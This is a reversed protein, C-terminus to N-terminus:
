RGGLVVRVMQRELDSGIREVLACRELDGFTVVYAVGLLRGVRFDVVTSSLLGSPGEQVARLGIATDHFGKIPVREVAVLTQDQGAPKGLNEEFQRLFIDNVWRSVADESQFLHAVTAVAVDAGVALSEASAPSVYEKLYGTVRGCQRFKAETNGSFGQEALTANDLTGERLLAFARFEEPMQARDLVMWRLSDPTVDSTAKTLLDAM